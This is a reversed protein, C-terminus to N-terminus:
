APASRKSSRSPSRPTASRRAELNEFMKTAEGISLTTLDVISKGDITVALIEPKLRKGHCVPCEREAMYKEIEKRVFDSDTEHYRREMNPIVGEYTTHYTRGGPGRMSIDTDGAGYLIVRLDAPKMETVAHDLSRGYHPLRGELLKTYWNMRSTTKAWPRIAGEALTLRRNPIVAEPDVELRTGLGTCHPCAGHPSNFSFNRPAIDPLQSRPPRAPTTSPTSRSSAATPRCCRSSAM